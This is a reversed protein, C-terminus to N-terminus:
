PTEAFTPLARLAAQAGGDSVCTGDIVDHLRSTLKPNETIRGELAHTVSNFLRWATKEGWDFPPNEWRDM